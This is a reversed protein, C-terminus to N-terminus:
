RNKEEEGGQEGPEGARLPVAVTVTTTSSSFSLMGRNELEEKWVEMGSSAGVPLSRRRTLQVSASTPRFPTM